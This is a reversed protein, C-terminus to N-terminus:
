IMGTFSPHAKFQSSSNKSKRGANSFGITSNIIQYHHYYVENLKNSIDAM